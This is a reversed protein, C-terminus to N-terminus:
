PIWIFILFFLSFSVWRPMNVVRREEWMAPRFVLLLAMVSIVLAILGRLMKEDLQIAVFTGALSGLVAPLAIPLIQRVDLAGERIFSRSATVSQLLIAVRNTANAVGMDLGSFVLLPLVLLSGGGAVTNLFGSLIGSVFILIPFLDTM